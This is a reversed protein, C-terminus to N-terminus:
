SGTGFTSIKRVNNKADEVADYAKKVSDAAQKVEQTKTKITTQIEKTTARTQDIYPEAIDTINQMLPKDTMLVGSASEITM